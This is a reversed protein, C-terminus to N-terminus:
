LEVCEPVRARDGVAQERWSFGGDSSAGGSGQCCRLLVSNGASRRPQRFRDEVRRRGMACLASLSGEDAEDCVDFLALDMGEREEDKAYRCLEPVDVNGRMKTIDDTSWGADLMFYDFGSEAAFDVYRKMNETTYAPKNNADLDGNWWDWSAKGPKIWSTDKLANQPNLDTIVNSEVLRGPDDAVLVVRWASHFPLWATVALEPNDFQPSLLSTMGHGLWSGSPNTLYMGASGELDAETVALWATGPEHALLPLGILFHSAVGGQNSFASAPLNVYESEYSSRYNPLALAWTMADSSFQFQTAEQRLRLEKMARPQEPLVYRFAVGSDYARAEIEMVRAAKGDEAVSVKLSEYPDHVHSTKGMTLSYDDVGSGPESGTVHVKAGLLAGGELDLGLTSEELVVKGRYRLSYVLQGSQADEGKAPRIALTMTLDGQPSQVMMQPQQAEIRAVASLLALASLLIRKHMIM